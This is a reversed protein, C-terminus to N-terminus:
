DLTLLNLMSMPPHLEMLIAVNCDSFLETKTRVNTFEVLRIDPRTEKNLPDGESFAKSKGLTHPMM